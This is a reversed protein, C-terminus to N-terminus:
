VGRTSKKAVQHSGKQLLCLVTSFFSDLHHSNSVIAESEVRKRMWVVHAIFSVRTSVVCVSSNVVIFM